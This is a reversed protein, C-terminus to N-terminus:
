YKPHLSINKIIATKKAEIDDSNVTKNVLPELPPCGWPYWHKKDEDISRIM